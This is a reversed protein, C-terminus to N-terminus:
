IEPDSEPTLRPLIPKDGEGRKNVPMVEDPPQIKRQYLRKMDQDHFGTQGCGRTM